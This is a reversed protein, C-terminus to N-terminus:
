DELDIEEVARTAAEVIECFAKRPRAAPGLGASPVWWRPTSHGTEGARMLAPRVGGGYCSAVQDLDLRDVDAVYGVVEVGFRAAVEALEARYKSEPIVIALRHGASTYAAACRILAALCDRNTYRHSM